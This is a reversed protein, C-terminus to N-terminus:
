PNVLVWTRLPADSYYFGTRSAAQSPSEFGPDFLLQTGSYYVDKRLFFDDSYSLTGAAAQTAFVSVAAYKAFAPPARSISFFSFGNSSYLRQDHSAVVQRNSDLYELRVYFPGGYLLRAYGSFSYSDSPMVPEYYSLDVIQFAGYSRAADDDSIKLGYSGSRRAEESFEARSFTPYTNVSISFSVQNNAESSEAINNNTDIIAAATITSAGAGPIAYAFIDVFQNPSLGGFPPTANVFYYTAGHSQIMNPNISVDFSPAFASGINRVRLKYAPYKCVGNSCPQYYAAGPAYYASSGTTTYTGIEYSEAYLDPLYGPTPTPSPGWSPDLQYNQYYDSSIRVSYYNRDYFGEAMVTIDYTGDPVYPM